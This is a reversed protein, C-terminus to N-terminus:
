PVASAAGKLLASKEAPPILGSGNRVNGAPRFGLGNLSGINKLVSLLM